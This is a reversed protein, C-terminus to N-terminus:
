RGFIVWLRWPLNLVVKQTINDWCSKVCSDWVSMCPGYPLMFSCCVKVSQERFAQISTISKMYYQTNRNSLLQEIRQILQQCVSSSLTVVVLVLSFLLHQAPSTYFEVFCVRALFLHSFFFFRVRELRFVRKSSWLASTEPRIWM